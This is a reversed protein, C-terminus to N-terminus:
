GGLGGVFTFFRHVWSRVSERSAYTISLRESLDWLSVRAVCLMVACIKEGPPHRHAMFLCSFCGILEDFVHMVWSFGLALSM